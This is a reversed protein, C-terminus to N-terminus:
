VDKLRYYYNENSFSIDILGFSALKSLINVVVRRQMNSQKVIAKLTVGEEESLHQMVLKERKSYKLLLGYNRSRSKWVNIQIINALHNQDFQRFYALWKDSENKAYYPKEKGELIDAELVTKGEVLWKSYKLEIAPKCYQTAALDLMYFEEETKIGRIKGNDKVGILLKGGRTNAFSSLTIAIKRADNVEFKFDLQEHEGQEIIKYIYESM